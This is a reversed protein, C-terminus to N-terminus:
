RGNGLPYRAPQFSARRDVVSISASPRLDVITTAPLRDLPGNQQVFLQLRLLKQSATAEGQRERGPSHGWYVEVTEPADAHSASTLGGDGSRGVQAPDGGTPLLIYTPEMPQGVEAVMDKRVVIWQLGMSQWAAGISAAIRAAGAVGPDGYPTGVAGMPPVNGTDVRLYNRTQSASFEDPPLFVGETDVPWFCDGTWREDRTRVMLIPERYRLKVIIRPGDKGARKGAWLVEAVWTNLEFAQVVNKTLEPDLASLETLGGDRIVDVKVDSRIWPPQPTIEFSEATLKYQSREGISRGWRAWGLYGGTVLLVALIAIGLLSRGNGSLPALVRRLSSVVSSRWSSDNRPSM